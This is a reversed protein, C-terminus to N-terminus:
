LKRIVKAPNGGALVGAPIDKTVVSSAAIISGQGITVGAMVFVGTALWVDNELIIGGVQADTEALGLAREEANLPHGPYGALFARGAIRVNDGIVVKSGVAITTMWGIDVNDGIWLMPTQKSCTRGTFTSHGSVRCREGLSIDLNGAIYPLGGYLFLQGGCAKTRSKFLPTWYGLRMMFSCLSTVLQHFFYLVRYPSKPLPIDGCHIAKAWRWLSQVFPTRSTKLWSKMHNLTAFSM